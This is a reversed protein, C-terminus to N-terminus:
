QPRKCRGFGSRRSRDCSKDYANAITANITDSEGQMWIMGAINITANPNADAIAVLGADVTEQFLVYDVGDGVTGNTGGAVWDVALDTGGNAYKIIAVSTDQTTGFFDALSRGFTIAPGFESTESLGPRLTTLAGLTNETRFYFPIDDQPQQLSAPLSNVEARGDANSQGGVLYVNIQQGHVQSTAFCAAIILFSINLFRLFNM